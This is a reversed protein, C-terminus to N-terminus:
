LQGRRRNREKRQEFCKSLATKEEETKAVEELIKKQLEERATKREERSLNQNDGKRSLNKIQKKQEESLGAKTCFDASTLRQRPNKSRGGRECSVISLSFTLFFALIILPSRM